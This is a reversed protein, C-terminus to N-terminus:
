FLKSNGDGGGGSFFMKFLDNANIGGGMGGNFGGFDM